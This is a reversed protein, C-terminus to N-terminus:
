VAHGLVFLTAALLVLPRTDTVGLQAVAIVTAIALVFAALLMLFRSVTLPM